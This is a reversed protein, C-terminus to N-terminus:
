FGKEASREISKVLSLINRRNKLEKMYDDTNRYVLEEMSEDFTQKFNKSLNIDSM